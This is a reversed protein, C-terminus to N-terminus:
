IEVHRILAFGTEVKPTEVEGRFAEGAEIDEVAEGDVGM